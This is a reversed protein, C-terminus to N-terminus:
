HPFRWVPREHAAEGYGDEGDPTVFGEIAGNGHPVYKERLPRAALAVIM